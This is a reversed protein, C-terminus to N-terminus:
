DKISQAIVFIVEKQAGRKGGYKFNIIFLGGGDVLGM